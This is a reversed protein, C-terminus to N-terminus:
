PYVDLTNFPLTRVEAADDQAEAAAGADCDALHARLLEEFIVGACQQIAAAVDRPTQAAYPCMDSNLQHLLRTWVDLLTGAGHAATIM